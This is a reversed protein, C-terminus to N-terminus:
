SKSDDSTMGWNFLYEGAVEELRALNPQDKRKIRERQGSMM